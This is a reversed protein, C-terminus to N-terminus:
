KSKNMEGRNVNEVIKAVNEAKLGHYKVGDVIMCPVNACEGLCQGEVLDFLGDPSRGNQFSGETVKEIAGHL